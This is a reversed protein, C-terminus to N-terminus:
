SANRLRSSAIRSGVAYRERRVASMQAERIAGM